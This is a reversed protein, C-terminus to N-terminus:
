CRFRCRPRWELVLGTAMAMLMTFGLVGGDVRVSSLLPLNFATLHAIGTTAGFALGLGLLAGCGTLLLSETLLQRILRRRGAGLAARIAMEKQRSATRALMLNSLNACVILMVVGVACALILLAPRLQGSVHQRLATLSPHLANSRPHESTIQDGLLDAEAQARGLRRGTEAQGCDGDHQGLSGDGQRARVSLLPGSSHGACFDRRLRVIRAHRGSGTVPADDLRITKGM